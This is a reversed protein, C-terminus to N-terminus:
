DGGFNLAREFDAPNSAAALAAERTIAGARFLDTIHQDFTQMGTDRNKALVDKLGSTLTPERIHHVVNATTMMIEQALVRGRGDARPLLRQSISAKLAEALRLRVGMQQESPFVSILRSVTSGADVTHVTSFVLHGTEAAKIAIDITDVDRMEGVLIVDPDQRLASRLATKFDSTDTGVERQSISSQQNKHLYEIPDEITIIHKRSNRNVHDVMAALTSTKGSGTAGTVLVLGRDFDAITKIAPPLRLADITPVEAPIIRLVVALSGRQRYINIRFRAVGPVSYSGDWENLMDLQNREPSDGMLVGALERTHQAGLKNDGLPHLVGNVRYIPADGPRFHIDSAGNKVGVGLLNHLHDPNM